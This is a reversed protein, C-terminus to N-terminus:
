TKQRRSIERLNEPKKCIQERVKPAKLNEASLTAKRKVGVEFNAQPCNLERLNKLKKKCLQRLKRYKNEKAKPSPEM